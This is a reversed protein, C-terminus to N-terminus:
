YARTQSPTVVRSNSVACACWWSRTSVVCAVAAASGV